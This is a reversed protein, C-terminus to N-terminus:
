LMCARCTAAVDLPLMLSHFAKWGSPSDDVCAADATTPDKSFIVNIVVGHLYKATSYEGDTLMEEETATLTSVKPSELSYSFCV